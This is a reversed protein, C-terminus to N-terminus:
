GTLIGIAGLMRCHARVLFSSAVPTARGHWCERQSDPTPTPDEKSCLPGQPQIMNSGPGSEHGFDAGFGAVLAAPTASTVVSPRHGAWVAGSCKGQDRTSEQLGPYGGPVALPGHFTSIPRAPGWSLLVSVALSSNSVVPYRPGVPTRVVAAARLKASVVRFM